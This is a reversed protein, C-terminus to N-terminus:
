SPSALVFELRHEGDLTGSWSAATDAVQFGPPAAAFRWGAPARVVLDLRDPNVVPQPRVLLRYRLQGDVVEAAGPRRLEFGLTKTRGAPVSIYRSLVTAGLEGQSSAHVPHGNETAATFGYGGAVYLSQYQRQEGAEFRHDYPGIVYRPLHLGPVGNHLSLRASAAAAGDPALRVEWRLRRKLFTDLKNGAANVGVPMLYDGAPPAAASGALGLGAWAKQARGDAPWVQVHRGRAAAAMGGALAMPRAALAQRASRFTAKAVEDLFRKRANNDDAWRVYAQVLTVDVLTRADLRIGQVTLPGSVALVAAAAVPDILIVGDLRQGTSRRYMGSILRGVTPLDPPINVASWARDVGFRAYRAAVSDALPVGPGGALPTGQGGSKLRRDLEPYDGV